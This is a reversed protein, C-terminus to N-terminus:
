YEHIAAHIKQGRKEGRKVSRWHDAESAPIPVFHGFHSTRTLSIRLNGWWSPGSTSYAMAQGKIITSDGDPTFAVYMVTSEHCLSGGETKSQVTSTDFTRKIGRALSSGDPAFAVPFMRGSEIAM